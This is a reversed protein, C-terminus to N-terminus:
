PVETTSGVPAPAALAAAVRPALEPFAGLAERAAERVRADALRATDQRDIIRDVYLQRLSPHGIFGSVDVEGLEKVGVSSLPWQRALETLGTVLPDDAAVGRALSLLDPLYRFALDAAYCEAASVKRAPCPQSLADRVADADIDRYVLSQCSRYLITLAWGAVPVDLPPPGDFALEPRVEQDLAAVAADLDAPASRSASVRVRGNELLADVFLLASM